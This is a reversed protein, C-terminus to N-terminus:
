SSDSSTTEPGEGEGLAVVGYIRRGEGRSGVVSM